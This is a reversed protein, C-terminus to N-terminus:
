QKWSWKMPTSRIGNKDEEPGLSKFGMKQYFSLSNPAANLTLYPLFGKKIVERKVHTLLEKAIGQHRHDKGVFLLFVHQNKCECIAARQNERFLEWVVSGQEYRSTFQTPHIFKQFNAHGIERNHPAIEEQYIKWLFESISPFKDPTCLQFNQESLIM